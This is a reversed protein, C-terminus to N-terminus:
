QRRSVRVKCAESFSAKVATQQGGGAGGPGLAKKVMKTNRYAVGACCIVLAACVLVACLKKNHKAWRRFWPPGCAACGQAPRPDYHIWVGDGVPLAPHESHQRPAPLRSMELMPPPVPIAVPAAMNAEMQSMRSNIFHLSRELRTRLNKVNTDTNGVHESFQGVTQEVARVQSRLLDVEAAMDRMRNFTEKFDSGRHIANLGAFCMTKVVSTASGAKDALAIGIVPSVGLECVVGVGSGDGKPGIFDGCKVAGEVAV